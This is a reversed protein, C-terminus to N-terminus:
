FQIGSDVLLLNLAIFLALSDSLGRHLDRDLHLKRTLVILVDLM